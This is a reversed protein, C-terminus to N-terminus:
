WNNYENEKNYNNKYENIILSTTTILMGAISNANILSHRVVLYPDIVKSNISEEWTDNSINYIFKFKEKELKTQIDFFNLGANTLIQEFPMKLTEQWIKSADNFIHLNNSIQLLSIGCGPLVGQNSVTLACLADELRMRKELGETKTPAGLKIDATGNSFMSIRKILFDKELDNNITKMEKKLKALYKKIQNNTKFDVRIKEKTIEIKTIYGIDKGTISSGQEIINAGTICAIDKMIEYIHMGYDEIKLLCLSINEILSLSVLEEVTHEEFDNAIIVLKQNNKIIDNLIFSIYELNHLSANLLLIYADEFNLINTDILFYPSALSIECSYGKFFSLSIKDNPVEKITIASKEKVKRMVQYAIQGLEEDGASITAINKLNSISAKSKLKQLEQLIIALNKDLEKKLLIPSAGNNIYQISQKYLSELLVLTTTTGDGVEEDTKISAEKIIELIAAIVQDESEINKAITVGDNTIFPSFTSHDILVNNGKPGLTQKVTGCLLSISELIKEQLESGCVVKKM